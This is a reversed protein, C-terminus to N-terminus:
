KAAGSKGQKATYTLNTTAMFGDTDLLLIVPLDTVEVGPKPINSNVMSYSAWPTQWSGNRFRAKLSWSEAKKNYKPLSFTSAGNVASGKLPFTFTLSAGGIDLTAVKGAFVTNSPAQFSGMLACSDANTKAFNLKSQVKNLGLQCAVMVDFNSTIAGVGNSITVSAAYPGCDNTYVHEVINTALFDSTTGDGFSWQYSLTGGEPSIAGVSFVNTDDAVVLIVNGVQLVANLTTVGNTIKPPAPAATIYGSQTLTNSGAPGTVTLSVSYSGVNNYTHTLSGVIVNTTTGDGFNWFRNTISGTSADTFTVLLPVPGNTPNATFGAM